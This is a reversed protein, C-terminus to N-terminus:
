AIVGPLGLRLDTTQGKASGSLTVGYILFEGHVENEDDDIRCLEDIAYNKTNQSHGKVKYNYVNAQARSQELLMKARKQPSSKDDQIAEVFPKYMYDSFPFETDEITYSSNIQPPETESGGQEQTLVTYKSHRNSIDEIAEAKIINPNAKGTKRQLLFSTKGKGKPSRFILNGKADSFFVLGRSKALDRLVSFVQQGPEIQIFPKSSDSKKAVTDYEINRKNFLPFKELLKKAVKVLDYNQLTPFSECYSDVIVSISDRGSVNFYRGTSDWARSVKDIIGILSLEGNVLLNAIMGARPKFSDSKYLEFQFANAAQYIDSEVTYSKWKDYRYSNILLEIKDSM